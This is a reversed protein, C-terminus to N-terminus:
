NLMLPVNMGKMMKNNRKDGFDADEELRLASIQIKNEPV